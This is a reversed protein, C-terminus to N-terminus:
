STGWDVNSMKLCWELQCCGPRSSEAVIVPLASLITSRRKVAPASRCPRESARCTHTNSELLKGRVPHAVGVPPLPLSLRREHGAVRYLAGHDAVMDGRVQEVGNEGWAISIIPGAWTSSQSGCPGLGPTRPCCSRSLGTRCRPGVGRLVRGGRRLSRKREERVANM